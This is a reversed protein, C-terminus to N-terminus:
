EKHVINFTNSKFNVTITRFPNVQYVNTIELHYVGAGIDPIHGAHIIAKNCGTPTRASTSNLNYIVGDVLKRYVTPSLDMYKCYDVEYELVDGSKLNTGIIKVDGNIDVVKYPYVLCFVVYSIFILVLSFFTYITINLLKM